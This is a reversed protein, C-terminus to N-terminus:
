AQDSESGDGGALFMLLHHFCCFLAIFFGAEAPNKIAESLGL